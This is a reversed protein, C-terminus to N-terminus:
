SSSDLIAGIIALALLALWLLSFIGGAVIGFWARGKGSLSPDRNIKRLAIIGLIVGMIGAPIGLFPFLAFLGMYGAVIASVPRGVPIMARELTGFETATAPRATPDLYHGCFRCKRAVAQIQEGCM